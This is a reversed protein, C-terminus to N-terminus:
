EPGTEKSRRWANARCGQDRAGALANRGSGCLFVCRARRVFHREIVCAGLAVAAVAASVSTTHDSLGVPIGFTNRYSEIVRLNVASLDKVPYNSVCQLLVLDLNGTARMTSIAEEVEVLTAMGSSFIVPKQRAAV